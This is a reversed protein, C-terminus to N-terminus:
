QKVDTDDVKNNRDVKRVVTKAAVKPNRKATVKETPSTVERTKAITTKTTRKPATTLSEQKAVSVAKEKKRVTNKIVPSDPVQASLVNEIFPIDAKEKVAIIDDLLKEPQQKLSAIVGMIGFDDQKSVSQEETKIKDADLSVVDNNLSIVDHCVQILTELENDFKEILTKKNKEFIGIIEGSNLKRKKYFRKIGAMLIEYDQIEGLLDQYDKIRELRADDANEITLLIEAIYRFKKFEIRIKHIDCAYDTRRDQIKKILKALSENAKIYIKSKVVQPKKRISPFVLEKKKCFRIVKDSTKSEIAKLYALYDATKPSPEVSELKLIQVQIDRLQGFLKFAKEGNKVKSPKVRFAALVPFIRRLTVRKDHIEQESTGKEIEKYNMVLSNYRKNIKDM